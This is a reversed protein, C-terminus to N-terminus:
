AFTITAAIGITTWRFTSPEAIPMMYIKDLKAYHKTGKTVAVIIWFLSFLYYPKLFDDKKKKRIPTTPTRVEKKNNNM